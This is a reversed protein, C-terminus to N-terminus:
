YPKYYYLREMLSPGAIWFHSGQGLDVILPELGPTNLDLGIPVSFSVHPNKMWHDEHSLLKSLEVVDQKAPILHINKSSPLASMSQVM